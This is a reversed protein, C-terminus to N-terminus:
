HLSPQTASAAGVLAAFLQSSTGQTTVVEYKELSAEEM